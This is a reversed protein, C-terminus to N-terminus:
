QFNGVKMPRSLTAMVGMQKARRITKGLLRQSRATLNTVGRNHIKGMESVFEYLLPANKSFDRPDLDLRYFPDKLRAEKSTPTVRKSWRPTKVRM